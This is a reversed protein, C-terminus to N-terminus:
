QVKTDDVLSAPTKGKLFDAAYEFVKWSSGPQLLATAANFKGDMTGDPFNENYDRSGVMALIQGTQPDLAVLAGNNVNKDKPLKALQDQIIQQAKNQLDLDLTTTITLGAEYLFRPGYKKELYDRVYFVFHPAQIDTRQSAFKLDESYAQAAQQESIYGQNVMANLVELQRSKALQRNQIPDYDSPSQPIGALMAAEALDLNKATKGFYSEAAAEIGYSQNGYYIQNLYMELI